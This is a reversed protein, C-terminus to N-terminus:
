QTRRFTALLPPVQGAAPPNSEEHAAPSNDVETAPRMPIDTIALTQEPRPPSLALLDRGLAELREPRNLYSWEAKLVHVAELNVLTRRNIEALRDEMEAVQYKLLFLGIGAAVALLMWVSTGRHIM